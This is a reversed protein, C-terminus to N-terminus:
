TRLLFCGHSSQKACWMSRSKFKLYIHKDVFILPFVQFFTSIYFNVCQSLLTSKVINMRVRVITIVGTSM